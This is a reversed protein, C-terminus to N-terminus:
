ANEDDRVRIRVGGTTRALMNFFGALMGGAILGVVLWGVCRIGGALFMDKMVFAPTLDPLKGSAEGAKILSYSEMMGSILGYVSCGLSIIMAFSISSIHTVYVDREAARGDDLVM